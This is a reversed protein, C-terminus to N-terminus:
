QGCAVGYGDLDNLLDGVPAQWFWGGQLRFKGVKQIPSAELNDIVRGYNVPDLNNGNSIGGAPQRENAERM